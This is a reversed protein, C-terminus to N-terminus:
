VRRYFSQRPFRERALELMTMCEKNKSEKMAEAEGQTNRKSAKEDTREKSGYYVTEIDLVSLDCIYTPSNILFFFWINLYYHTVFYLATLLLKLQITWKLLLFMHTTM